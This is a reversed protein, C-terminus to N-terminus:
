AAAQKLDFALNRAAAISPHAAVVGAWAQFWSPAAIDGGAWENSRALTDFLVQYGIDVLGLRDGNWFPAIRAADFAPHELRSLAAELAARREVREDASARALATVLPFIERDCHWMWLDALAQEAAHAAGLRPEPFVDDLYAAIAWSEWVSTSSGHRIAPTRAYPSAARWVALTAEDGTKVDVLRFPAQKEILVAYARVAWGCTPSTYVVVEASSPPAEGTM